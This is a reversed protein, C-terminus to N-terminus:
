NLDPNFGEETDVNNVQSSMRARGASVCAYSPHLLGRRCRNCPTKQETMNVYPCRKAKPISSVRDLSAPRSHERSGCMKCAHRRRPSNREYRGKSNKRDRSKFNNGSRTRIYWKTNYPYRKNANRQVHRGSRTRYFVPSPSPARRVPSASAAPSRPRTAARPTTASENAHVQHGYKRGSPSYGSQGNGQFQYNPNHGLTPSPTGGRQSGAASTAAYATEPQATAGFDRSPTPPRPRPLTPTFPLSPPVAPSSGYKSMPHQRYPNNTEHSRRLDYSSRQNDWQGKRSRPLQNNSNYGRFEQSGHHEQPHAEVTCDSFKQIFDGMPAYHDMQFVTFSVTKDGLHKPSKLRFQEKQEAKNIFAILESYEFKKDPLNVLFLSKVHEIQTALNPEVLHKATRTCAKDAKKVVDKEKAKPNELMSAEIILSRYIGLPIEINENVERKIKKIAKHVQEKLTDYNVTNVIAKFVEAPTNLFSIISSHEPLYTTVLERLIETFAERTLGLDEARKIFKKLTELLHIAKSHTGYVIFKEFDTIDFRHPNILPTSDIEGTQMCVKFYSDGIVAYPERKSLLSHYAQLFDTSEMENGGRANLAQTTVMEDIMTRLQKQHENTVDKVSEMPEQYHVYWDMCQKKFLEIQTHAGFENAEQQQLLEDRTEESLKSSNELQAKLLTTTTEQQQRARLHNLYNEAESAM